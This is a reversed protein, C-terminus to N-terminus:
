VMIWSSRGRKHVDIAPLLLTPNATNLHDIQKSGENVEGWLCRMDADVECHGDDRV